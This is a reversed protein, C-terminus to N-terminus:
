FGFASNIDGETPQNTNIQKKKWEKIALNYPYGPTSKYFEKFCNMNGDYLYFDAGAVKWKSISGQLDGGNADVAIVRLGKSRYKSALKSGKIGAAEM